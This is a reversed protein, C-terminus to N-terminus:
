SDTRDSDEEGERCEPLGGLGRAAARGRHARLPSRGASRSGNVVPRERCGGGDVTGASLRQGAPRRVTARPEAAEALWRCVLASVSRPMVSTATGDWAYVLESALEATVNAGAAAFRDALAGVHRQSEPTVILVRRSAFASLDRTGLDISELAAIEDRSILFGSSEMSGDPLAPPVPELDSSRDEALAQFARAERLYARGSVYPALLGIGTM